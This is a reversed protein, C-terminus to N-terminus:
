LRKAVVLTIDDTPPFGAAFENLARSVAEVIAGAEEQRRQSLLEIFREEGFEDFNANTTETVGDSYLVMLDGAALSARGERYSASPIIGLAPGGLELIETKGSARVLIPPYHGANAFVVEGTSADLVCFFFTIFLNGPCTPCTAENLRQMFAALNHPNEALVQVRAHLAMMMLAAPMGKGCVDGLAVSVRGDPHTFFAYYDGGVTRCPANLGALDIGPVQPAKGPLMRRQIAAAQTLDRQMMRDAEELEALRANEIRVAAVNAMVTLLSLDENTFERLVLPSDVYILGLIQEKSQLPAAMITHIRQEVISQRNKYVDDLQVNCVLISSKENLVHDRVATSIRFGAGKNAKPVLRDEQLILLVGRQADVAEIALDLIVPFLEALPRNKSLELGAHLLAQMPKHRALAHELNTTITPLVPTLQDTEACDFVVMEAPPEPAYVIVLQGATIRDGPQLTIRETLRVQNVFTGNRSRLDQVTWNEGEAEFVFHQRSLGSDEPFCLGADVSRGVSLREGTLMASKTEGDRCQILLERTM